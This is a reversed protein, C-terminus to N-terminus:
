LNRTKLEFGNEWGNLRNTGRIRKRRGSGVINPKTVTILIPKIHYFKIHLMDLKGFFFFRAKSVRCFNEYLTVDRM